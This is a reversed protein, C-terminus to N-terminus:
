GRYSTGKNEDIPLQIIFTSGSGPESKLTLHGGLQEIAHKSIYLGLGLGKVTHRNQESIRYFKNFIMTQQSIAIGSGKDIVEIYYNDGSYAKLTITTGAPTYKVANEVLNNLANQLTPLHTRLIFTEPSIDTILTHTDLFISKAYENLCTSINISTKEIKLETLTASELVSDVTQQIKIQQRSLSQLLENFLVPNAQVEQKGLSKIIISVSSLPTKLEHTINNAFDTQIEAIKKQRFIASFMLYFLIIVAVILGVALLFISAMQGFLERKWGSTNVYSSGFIFVKCLSLRNTPPIKVLWKSNSFSQGGLLLLDTKPASHGFYIYPKGSRALLISNRGNVQIIVEDIREVYDANKLLPTKASINSFYQNAIRTVSDNKIMIAKLLDKRSVKGEIYLQITAQLNAWITASLKTKRHTVDYFKGAAIKLDDNYKEKKLQYTAKVLYFQMLSLTSVIILCSILLAKIKYSTKM